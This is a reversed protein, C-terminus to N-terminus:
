KTASDARAGTPPAATEGPRVMPALYVRVPKRTWWAGTQALTQPDSLTYHYLMARLYRPPEDAFPNFSFFNLVEDSDELMRMMMRAVWPRSRQPGLAAFWMQWDVRPQHPQVFAPRRYVDGPKWRFQYEHWVQMDNSGEIIIEPREKTMVRFLGYNNVVHFPEVYSLMTAYRSSRLDWQRTALGFKIVSVALIALGVPVIVVRRAWLALLKPPPLKALWERKRRTTFRRLFQDDLLSVCLVAALLNFFNYNGTAAIVAMLTVTAACAWYRLRRPGFMMFPVILEITFMVAASFQHAWLPLHHMYWATWPPLPQTVYHYKLATLDPWCPDGSILKVWGSLFMLRFLLWRLLFLLLRSPPLAAPSGLRMTLPGFFIALFGTELLLIDWQFSMFVQGAVFLSLYFIWLLVLIPVPALGVILLVALLAGGGCLVGQLFLDSDNWWCLTPFTWFAKNPEEQREFYATVSELHTAVPLIGKQGVLGRIQVGLSLFAILYVVGLLRLFWRRTLHYTPPEVNKGWLFNTIKLFANRRRAIFRYGKETAWDFGPVHEYAWWARGRRPAYSVARFAAGAGSLIQGDIDILQVARRFQDETIQPFQEAVEQAPAYEVRDGTIAQWRAVWRRCFRCEGDYILLPKARPNAFM